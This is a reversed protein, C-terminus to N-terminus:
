NEKKHELIFQNLRDMFGQKEDETALMHLYGVSGELELFSILYNYVSNSQALKAGLAAQQSNLLDTLTAVGQKYANQVLEMSKGASEASKKAFEINTMASLLQLTNAQINLTLANDLNKINLSLQDQQIKSKQVNIHRRNGEFLPYSINLAVNWSNDNFSQGPLPDSGDGGRWLVEDMQGQLALTPLYYSRKNMALQREAVQLNAMLSKKTPHSEQAEQAMFDSILRLDDPR